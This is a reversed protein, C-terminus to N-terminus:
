DSHWCPATVYYNYITYECPKNAEEQQKMCLQKFPYAQDARTENMKKCYCEFKNGKADTCFEPADEEMDPDHNKCCELDANKIQFHFLISLNGQSSSGNLM